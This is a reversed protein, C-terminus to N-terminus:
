APRAAREYASNLKDLHLNSLWYLLNELFRQIALVSAGDLAQQESLGHQKGVQAV